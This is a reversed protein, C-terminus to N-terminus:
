IRQALADVAVTVLVMEVDTLWIIVVGIVGAAMVVIRPTWRWYRTVHSVLMPPDCDGGECAGSASVTVTASVRCSRDSCRVCVGNTILGGRDNLLV